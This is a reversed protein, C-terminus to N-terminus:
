LFHHNKSEELYPHNPPITGAKSLATAVVLAFLGAFGLFLGAEIWGFQLEGTIGPIIQVFLDVYQGAILLVIVSIIVSMNRSTKVPMLLLFPIAWNLGIELFFLVKWGAKWRASFYVTEEPINGYWIIMFQSFWFYGWIISLIFIYRSFDHLHYKNLFPFHGRKYLIIIILAIISVGHLFAAVFNKLAFITSYWHPDISMIWDFASFSFTIALIFIFIKSYLESRGFLEMISNQDTHDFSDEKLSIRRLIRSFIIWLLFYIVLRSFFFPINLFPSKGMLVPDNLVAEKHSWHYLDHTGFYLFLFFVGAFPIYAMMAEPVRKFASSWGSQSISQIALFFTAGIALSLFYYNVILYNAWTRKHDSLLGLLMTLAGLCILTVTIIRFAKSVTLQEKM